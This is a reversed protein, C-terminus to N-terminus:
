GAIVAQPSVSYRSSGIEGKRKLHGSITLHRITGRISPASVGPAVRQVEKVVDYNQPNGLRRVADLVLRTTPHRGTHVGTESTPAPPLRVERHDRQAGTAVYYLALLTEEECHTLIHALEERLKGLAANRLLHTASTESTPKAAPYTGSQSPTPAHADNLVM